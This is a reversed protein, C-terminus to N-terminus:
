ESQEVDSRVDRMIKSLTKADYGPVTPVLYGITDHTAWACIAVKQPSTVSSCAAKGGGDGPDVNTVTLGNAKAPKAFCNARWTTPVQEKTLKAGLFVLGGKPGRKEIAQNYIASKVYNTKKACNGQGQAKLQQEAQSLQTAFAKEKAADRKMSGATAPTTIKHSDSKLVFYGILGGAVLVVVIVAAIIAFIKGKGSKRPPPAAAGTAEVPETTDVPETTESPAVVPQDVATEDVSTAEPDQVPGQEAETTPEPDPDPHPGSTPPTQDSM